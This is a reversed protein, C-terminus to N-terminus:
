QKIASTLESNLDSLAQNLHKLAELYKEPSERKVRELETNMSVFLERQEEQTLQESNQLKLKITEIM